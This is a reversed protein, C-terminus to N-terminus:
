KKQHPKFNKRQKLILACMIKSLVGTAIQQCRFGAQGGFGKPRLLSVRFRINASVQRGAAPQLAFAPHM